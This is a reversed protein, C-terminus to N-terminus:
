EAAEAPANVTAEALETLAQATNKEEELTEELLGVAGELGLQEAWRKLTGYHAIEYHEVL